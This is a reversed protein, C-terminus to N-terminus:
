KKKELAAKLGALAGFAGAEEESLVGAARLSADAGPARPFPDLALALTQALAEGLDIGQGDYGIVDCDAASLEIEDEGSGLMSEEVFLLDFPEDIVAPVADGTVVCAQEAEAHLWGRARIGAATRALAAEGSLKDLSRLGFRNALAAREMANAEIRVARSREGIEDRRYSRSFENGSM